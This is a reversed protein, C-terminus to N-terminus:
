QPRIPLAIDCMIHKAHINLHAGNVKEVKAEEGEVPEQIPQLAQLLERVMKMQEALFMAGEEITANSLKFLISAVTGTLTTSYLLFLLILAPFSAM